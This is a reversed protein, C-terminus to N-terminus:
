DSREKGEEKAKQIVLQRDKAAALLRKEADLYKKRALFGESTPETYVAPLRKCMSADSDTREAETRIDRGEKKAELIDAKRNMRAVALGVVDAMYKPSNWEAPMLSDKAQQLPDRIDKGQLEAEMIRAVLDIYAAELGLQSFELSYQSWWGEVCRRDEKSLRAIAVSVIEGNEKKLRVTGDKLDIFM